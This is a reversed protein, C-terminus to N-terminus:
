RAVVQFNSLDFDKRYKRLEAEIANGPQKGIEFVRLEPRRDNLIADFAKRNAAVFHVIAMKGDDTVQARWALIGDRSGMDAPLFEPRIPDNSKGTGTLHVLCILRYYRAEPAAGSAPGRAVQNTQASEAVANRQFAPQGNSMQLFVTM